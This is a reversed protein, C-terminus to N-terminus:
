IFDKRAYREPIVKGLEVTLLGDAFTVQRVETDDSLTWSRSFNRRAIGRHLCNCEETEEKRNSEVFLKGHETYVKIEEEKFGALAIELRSEVNNVEILNYPPYTASGRIDNIKDFYSELGISHKSIADFLAPLDAASYRQINMMTRRKFRTTTTDRTPSM